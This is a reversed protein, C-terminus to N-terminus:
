IQLGFQNSNRAAETSSSSLLVDSGDLWSRDFQEEEANIKKAVSLYAWECTRDDIGLLLATDHRTYGELARLVFVFRPLVPIQLLRQQLEDAPLNVFNALSASDFSGLVQDQCSCIRQDDRAIAPRVTAICFKILLRRAWSSMWERFVQEAGKLTQEFAADVARQSLEEDGTLTFCLWCLRERSSAFLAKYDSPSCRENNYTTTM